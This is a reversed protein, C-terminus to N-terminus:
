TIGVHVRSCCGSSLPPPNRRFTGLYKGSEVSDCALLYYEEEEEEELPRGNSPM